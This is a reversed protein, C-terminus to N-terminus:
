RPAFGVKPSFRSNTATEQNSNSQLTGLGTELTAEIRRRENRKRIFDILTLLGSNSLNVSTGSKIQSTGSEVKTETPLARIPRMTLTPPWVASSVEIEHIVWVHMIREPGYPLGGTSAYPQEL